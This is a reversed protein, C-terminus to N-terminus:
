LPSVSKQTFTSTDVQVCEIALTTNNCLCAYYYSDEYYFKLLFKGQGGIVFNSIGATLASSDIAVAFNNFHSKTSILSFDITVNGNKTTISCNHKYVTNDGIISGNKTFGTADISGNFKYDM